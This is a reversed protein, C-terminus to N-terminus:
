EGQQRQPSRSDSNMIMTTAMIIYRYWYQVLAIILPAAARPSSAVIRAALARNAALRM